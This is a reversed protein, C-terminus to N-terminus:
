RSLPVLKPNNIIATIIEEFIAKLYEDNYSRIGAISSAAMGNVVVWIRVHLAEVRDAALNKYKDSVLVLKKFNDFSYDFMDQNRAFGEVFLARYLNPNEESFRIFAIGLSVLPDDAYKEALKVDFMYHFVHDLVARKYKEMNQFAGYIPQTSISFEKAVDRATFKEFGYKQLYKFGFDLLMEDTIVKKRPM